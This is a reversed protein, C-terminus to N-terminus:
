DSLECYVNAKTFCQILHTSREMCQRVWTISLSSCSQLASWLVRWPQSVCDLILIILIFCQNGQSSYFHSHHTHLKSLWLSSSSCNSHIWTLKLIILIYINFHDKSLKGQLVTGAAKDIISVDDLADSRMRANGKWSCDQLLKACHIVFKLPYKNAKLM